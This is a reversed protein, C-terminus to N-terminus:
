EIVIGRRKAEKAITIMKSLKDFEEQTYCIFDVPLDLNWELYFPPARSLNDKKKFRGIIIIDVDNEYSLRKKSEARSGFLIIKDVKYKKEIRKKFKRLNAVLSERDM